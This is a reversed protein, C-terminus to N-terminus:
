KREMAKGPRETGDHTPQTTFKQKLIKKIRNIKTGVNTDSIGLVEAIDQYSNGELYLIMIAKNLRDLQNIFGHLLETNNDLAENAEQDDVIQFLTDNFPITKEKRKFDKRYHSIAM